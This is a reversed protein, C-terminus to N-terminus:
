NRLDTWHAIIRCNCNIKKKPKGNLRDQTINKVPLFINTDLAEGFEIWYHFGFYQSFLRWQTAAGTFGTTVEMCTM